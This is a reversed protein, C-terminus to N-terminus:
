RSGCCAKVKKGSGCPCRDNRGARALASARDREEVWSMVNAPPRGARLEAAMLRMFPDVHRFFRKYGTCLFNLGPEGDATTDFRNKPCEGHCAFRVECSRCDSPLRDRKELGFQEQFPARALGQLPAELINGLRHSPYVFHDCSFLDGNHEVALAEGCTSRFLCLSAEGHYWNELAVDFLQVFVRGVDRRVWEDFITCLFRGLGDGSVSWPAVRPPQQADRAADGQEGAAGPPSALGPMPNTGRGRSGTVALREVLPIFQLFRSGLDVLHRYVELGEEANDQHVVTLTNFEVGHRQLLRLAELVRAHTPHGGRDVRFRDHLPAPGDISLGVLFRERSLFDGWRDDLLLGNTQFGNEIRKGNAFRRQLEVVQEFFEVGLLTPEGGQWAFNVTPSDQSEIYQQIFAELVQPPMRWDSVGPYLREKELYFCYRCALNCSPGAPKALVHFLHPTAAGLQRPTVRSHYDLCGARRTM